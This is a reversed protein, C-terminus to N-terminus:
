CFKHPVLAVTPPLSAGRVYNALAASFSSSLIVQLLLIFNYTHPRELTETQHKGAEERRRGGAQSWPISRLADHQLIDGMMYFLRLVGPTYVM